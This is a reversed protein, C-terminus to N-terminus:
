DWGHEGEDSESDTFSRGERRREVAMGNWARRM